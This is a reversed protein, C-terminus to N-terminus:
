VVGTLRDFPAHGRRDTGEGIGGVFVGRHGDSAVSHCKLTLHPKLYMQILNFYILSIKLSKM